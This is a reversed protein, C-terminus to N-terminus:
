ESVSLTAVGAVILIIGAWQRWSVKEKLFVMAFIVAIAGYASVGIAAFERGPLRGAAIVAVVALVDLAAILFIGNWHPLSLKPPARERALFPLIALMAAPRSVWTAEVEGMAAAANQGLIIAAAYGASAIVCYFILIPLKEKEVSDIGSTKDGSRAVLAAGGIAVVTAGWQLLSPELGHVIGWLFVLVPYASTLPAVLSVPGMSFAKFIGVGGLGYAVGLGLALWLGSSSATTLTGNFFVFAALLVFGIAMVLFAMRFPGIRAALRRAFLDHVSWCLAAFVGLLVVPM